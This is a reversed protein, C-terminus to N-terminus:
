IPKWSQLPQKHSSLYGVLLGLPVFLSIWNYFNGSTQANALPVLMIGLLAYGLWDPNRNLRQIAKLLIYGTLAIFFFLAVFGGDEAIQLFINHAHPYLTHIENYGGIGHGLFPQEKIADLSLEWIYFRVEGATSNEIAREIRSATRPVTLIVAIIATFLALGVVFVPLPRMWVRISMSYGFRKLYGATGYLFLLVAVMTGFLIAGRGHNLALGIVSVVLVAFGICLLNRTGGYFYLTILAGSVAAVGMAQRVGTELYGKRPDFFRPEIFDLSYLILLTSLVLNVIVVIFFFLILSNRNSITSAVAFSLALVALNALDETVMRQNLVSAFLLTGSLGALIFFSSAQERSLSPKFLFLILSCAAAGAGAIIWLEHPAGFAQRLLPISLLIGLLLVGCDQVAKILRYRQLIMGDKGMFGSLTEDPFDQRRWVTAL